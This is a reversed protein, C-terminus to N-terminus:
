HVLKWRFPHGLKNRLLHDVKCRFRHDSEAPIRLGCAQAITKIERAQLPAM